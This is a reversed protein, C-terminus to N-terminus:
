HNRRGPASARIARAFDANSAMASDVSPRTRGPAAARVGAAFDIGAGVDTAETYGTAETFNADRDSIAARVHAPIPPNMTELTMRDLARWWRRPSAPRGIRKRASSTPDDTASTLTNTNTQTM